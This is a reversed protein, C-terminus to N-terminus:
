VTRRIGTTGVCCSGDLCESYLLATSSAEYFFCIDLFYQHADNGMQQACSDSGSQNASWNESGLEGACQLFDFLGAGDGESM